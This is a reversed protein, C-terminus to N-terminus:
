IIRIIHIVYRAIIYSMGIEHNLCKKLFGNKDKKAEIYRKAEEVPAIRPRKARLSM